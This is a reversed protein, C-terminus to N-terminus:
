RRIRKGIVVCAGVLVAAALFWTVMGEPVPGIRGLAWGGRDDPSKAYEVYAVISNLQPDSIAKESFRPMVFPGIRVAEAIQVPTAQDLPPPVAGTVYGGQAAIQHCGACHERFLALGESLSGEQPQPDPIPPGPALSAIYAVLARIERDDFFDPNRRPQEGVHALPMYGTRLYFDAAGAGVGSLSPGMGQTPGPAVQTEPPVVGQGRDGHCSSCNQSYLDFGQQVLPTGPPFQVRTKPQQAGTGAPVALVLFGLALLSLRKM